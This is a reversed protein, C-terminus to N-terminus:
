FKIGFLKLWDQVTPLTRRSKEKDFRVIPKCLGARVLKMEILLAHGADYDAVLLKLGNNL